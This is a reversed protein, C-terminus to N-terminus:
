EHLGEVKIERKEQSAKVAAEMVAQTAFGVEGDCEPSRGDLAARAWDDVLPQDGYLDLTPVTVVTRDVLQGNPGSKTSPKEVTISTNFFELNDVIIRGKTGDIQVYDHRPPSTLITSHMGIMGSKFRVVFADTDDVGEEWGRDQRVTDVMASLSAAEGGFNLLVEIRHCAMEMMAGGIDKDARWTGAVDPFDGSYHTRACVVTGITGMRIQEKAAVVQPFLRRRFAVGLQVGAERCAHVMSRAEDVNRAMPKECLVHKGHQAALITYEAHTDSPTAVIVADVNPDRCLAGPDSYAHITVAGGQLTQHHEAFEQALDADRRCVAVLQADPCALVSPAFSKKTIDGLGIIGVRLPHESISPQAAATAATAAATTAAAVHAAAPRPLIHCCAVELRREATTAM